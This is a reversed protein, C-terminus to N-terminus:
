AESRERARRQGYVNRCARHIYRVVKGSAERVVGDGALDHIWEHCFRCQRAGANGSLRLARLRYHLLRHYGRSECIVLNGPRNDTKIENVHHVDATPPLPKGLAREAVLIHERAYGNSSARAHAPDYTRVYGRDDVRSRSRTPM